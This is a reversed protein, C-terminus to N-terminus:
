QGLAKQTLEPMKALADRLKREASAVHQIVAEAYEEETETGVFCAELSGEKAFEAVSKLLGSSDPVGIVVARTYAEWLRNWASVTDAVAQARGQERGHRIAQTLRGYGDFVAHIRVIFEDCRDVKRIWMEQRLFRRLALRATILTSCVAVLGSGVIAVITQIWEM